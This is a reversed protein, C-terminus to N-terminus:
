PRDELNMYVSQPIPASDKHEALAISLAVAMLTAHGVLLAIVILPWCITKLFDPQETDQQPM